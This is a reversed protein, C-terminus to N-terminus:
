DCRRAQVGLAVSAGLVDGLGHRDASEPGAPVGIEVRQPCPQRVTREPM